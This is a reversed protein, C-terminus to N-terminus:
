FGLLDFEAQLKQQFWKVTRMAMRLSEKRMRPLARPALLTDAALGDQLRQIQHSLLLDLLEEYAADTSALFAASLVGRRVLAVLRDCTNRADINHRLAYIRSADAIIRLGNRKIDITGRGTDRRGAHQTILRNFLGLPPRGEADDAAMLTLLRPNEQLQVSVHKRLQGVLDNDGYLTDFDFVINAWRAGKETPVRAVQTVQQQWQGLTKHFTPNRAMINGSCLPYGVADLSLNVRESFRAFWQRVAARDTAPADSLIIGNDQDPNLM